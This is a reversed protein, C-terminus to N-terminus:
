KLTQGKHISYKKVDVREPVYQGATVKRDDFRFDPNLGEKTLGGAKSPLNQGLRSGVLHEVTASDSRNNESPLTPDMPKLVPEKNAGTELESHDHKDDSQNAVDKDEPHVPKDSSLQNGAGPTALDTRVKDASVKSKDADVDPTKTELPKTELSHTEAPSTKLTGDANFEITQKPKTGDTLV